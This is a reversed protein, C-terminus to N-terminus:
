SPIPAHIASLKPFSCFFQGALLRLTLLQRAGPPKSPHMAPFAARSLATQPPPTAQLWLRKSRSPIRNRTSTCITRILTCLNSYYLIM